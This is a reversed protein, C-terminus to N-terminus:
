QEIFATAKKQATLYVVLAAAVTDVILDKITDSYYEYSWLPHGTINYFVELGEWAFGILFTLFIVSIAQYSFRPAHSRFVGVLCLAIGMCTLGHALIDLWWVRVYAGDMGYNHLFFVGILILLSLLYYRM